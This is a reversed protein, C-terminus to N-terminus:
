SFYCKLRKSVTGWESLDFKRQLGLARHIAGPAQRMILNCVIKIARVNMTQSCSQKQVYILAAQYHCLYVFLAFVHPRLEATLPCPAVSFPKTNSHSTIVCRVGNQESVFVSVAPPPKMGDFSAILM